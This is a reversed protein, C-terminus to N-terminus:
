STRLQALVDELTPRVPAVEGFNVMSLTRAVPAESRLVVGFGRAEGASRRALGFLVHLAASDLFEVGNLDLVLASSDAALEDLRRELEDANTLDLEGSLEALTADELDTERVELEYSTVAPLM